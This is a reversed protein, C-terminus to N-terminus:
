FLYNRKKEILRFEREKVILLIQGDIIKNTLIALIIRVKVFTITSLLKLLLSKLKLKVYFINHKTDLMNFPTM